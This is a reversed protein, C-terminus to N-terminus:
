RVEKQKENNALNYPLFIYDFDINYLKEIEKVKKLTPSTRGKEWNRLTYPDVHLLRAAVKQNYGANVRAAELTIKFEQV